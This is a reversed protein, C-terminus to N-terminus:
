LHSRRLSVRGTNATDLVDILPLTDNESATSVKIQRIVKFHRHVSVSAKDAAFLSQKM